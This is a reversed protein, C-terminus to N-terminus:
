DPSTLFSASHVTYVTYRREFHQLRLSGSRIALAPMKKIQACRARVRARASPNMECLLSLAKQRPSAFATSSSSSAGAVQDGVVDQREGNSLLHFAVAVVVSFFSIHFSYIFPSFFHTTPVRLHGCSCAAQGSVTWSPTQSTQWSTASLGLDSSSGSCRRACRRRPSCLPSSPWPSASSTACRPSTSRTTSCSPLSWPRPPPPPLPRPTRRPPTAARLPLLSRSRLVWAIKTDLPM